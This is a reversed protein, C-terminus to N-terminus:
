FHQSSVQELLSSANDKTCCLPMPVPTAPTAVAVGFKLSLSFTINHQESSVAIEARMTKRHWQLMYRHLMPAPIPHGMATGLTINYM